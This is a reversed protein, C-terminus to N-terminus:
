FRAIVAAKDGQPSGDHQDPNGQLRNAGQDIQVATVPCDEGLQQQCGAQRWALLQLCGQHTLQTAAHQLPLQEHGQQDHRQPCM